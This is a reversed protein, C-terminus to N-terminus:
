FRGTHIWTASPPHGLCIEPELEMTMCTRNLQECAMLTSGSGGFTDLVIANEQTSNQIPYGLLDLPKSTPHRGQQAQAQRFELYPRKPADRTGRTSATRSSGTSSRSM